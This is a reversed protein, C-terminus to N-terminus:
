ACAPPEFAVGAVDASEPYYLLLSIYIPLLEKGHMNLASEWIHRVFNAEEHKHALWERGRAVRGQTFNYGLKYGKCDSRTLIGNLYIQNAYNQDLIIDGNPTEVRSPYSVWRIDITVQLWDLFTELSVGRERIANIPGIIVSVDPAIRTQAIRTKANGM